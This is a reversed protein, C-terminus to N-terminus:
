GCVKEVVSPPSLLNPSSNRPREFVIGLGRFLKFLGSYRGSLDVYHDIYENLSVALSLKWQNKIVNMSSRKTRNHFPISEIQCIFHTEIRREHRMQQIFLLMHDGYVFLVTKDNNVYKFLKTQNNNSSQYYTHFIHIQQKRNRSAHLQTIATITM